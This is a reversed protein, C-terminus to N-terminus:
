NCRCTAKRPRYQASVAPPWRRETRPHRGRSGRRPDHRQAVKAPGAAHADLLQRAGCRSKVWAHHPALRDKINLIAYNCLYTIDHRDNPSILHVVLTLTPSSKATTVGPRQMPAAPAAARSVRNM